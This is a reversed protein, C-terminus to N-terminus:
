SKSAEKKTSDASKEVVQNNDKVKPNNAKAEESNNALCMDLSLLVYLIIFGINFLRISMTPTM